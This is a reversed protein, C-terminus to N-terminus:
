RTDNDAKRCEEIDDGTDDEFIWGVGILSVLFGTVM